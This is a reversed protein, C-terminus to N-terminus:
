LQESRASESDEDLQRSVCGILMSWCFSAEGEETYEYRGRCSRVVPVAFVTIVKLPGTSTGPTPACVNGAPVYPRSSELNEFGIPVDYLDEVFLLDM